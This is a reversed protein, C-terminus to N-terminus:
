KKFKDLLNQNTKIADTAPTKPQETENQKATHTPEVNAYYAPDDLGEMAKMVGLRGAKLQMDAMWAEVAYTMIVTFVTWSIGAAALAKELKPTLFMKRVRASTVFKMFEDPHENFEKVLVDLIKQVEEKPINDLIKEVKPIIELMTKKDMSSFNIKEAFDKFEEDNMKNVYDKFENIQAKPDKLSAPIFDKIKRTTLRTSIENLMMNLEQETLIYQM